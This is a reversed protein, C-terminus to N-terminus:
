LFCKDKRGIAVFIHILSLDKPWEKGIIAKKFGAAEFAVQWDNVGKILYPVWKKPTAPDIYFIIPKVPEVLEGRRYRQVDKPVLRFRGIFQERDTKHQNDNFYTVRDTFYGVREDWLRKRMPIKPLMVFSTNLGLTVAGTQAAAM